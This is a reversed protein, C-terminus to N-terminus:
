FEEVIVVGNAGVGGATGGDGGNGGGGYGRGASGTVTGGAGLGLGSQGGRGPYVAQDYAGRDGPINYDGGSGIGPPSGVVSVEGAGGGTASCYAGFSSSNGTSGATNVAGGVGGTGVTVSVSSVASVDILEVAAGGGSGGSPFVTGNGGAGGGGGGVVTVKIKTVGAPKTWTGSSTLVQISPTRTAKPNMLVLYTGDYMLVAKHGAPIDGAVLAATGEKVITKAGLSNLNLTPTTSTNANTFSIFYHAGTVYATFVPSIDATYTDTGTAAAYNVPGQLATPVDVHLRNKSIRVVM